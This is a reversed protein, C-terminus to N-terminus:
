KKAKFQRVSPTASEPCCGRDTTPNRSTRPCWGRHRQWPSLRWPRWPAVRELVALPGELRSRWWNKREKKREKKLHCLELGNRTLSSPKGKHMSIAFHSSAILYGTIDIYMHNSTAALWPPAWYHDSARRGSHASAESAELIYDRPPLVHERHRSHM